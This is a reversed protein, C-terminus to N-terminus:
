FNLNLNYILRLSVYLKGTFAIKPIKMHRAIADGATSGFGSLINVVGTPFGAEKFLSAIKLGSLPTLESTKLVVTNGCSLMPALKMAQMFIPFNWPIIAGCVGYPERRTYNFKDHANETV